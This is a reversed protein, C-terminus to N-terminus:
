LVGAIRGASQVLFVLVVIKSYLVTACAVAVAFESALIVGTYTKM